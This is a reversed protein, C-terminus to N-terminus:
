ARRRKLEAPEAGRPLHKNRKKGDRRHFYGRFRAVLDEAPDAEHHWDDMGAALAVDPRVTANATVAVIRSRLGECGTSSERVPAARGNGADPRGDLLDRRLAANWRKSCKRATLSSMRGYGLRSLMTLAAKQNINNDEAILIHLPHRAAM